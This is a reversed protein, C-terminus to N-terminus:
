KRPLSKKKMMNARSDIKRSICQIQESQSSSEQSVYRVSNDIFSKRVVM